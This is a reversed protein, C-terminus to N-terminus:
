SEVLVKKQLCYVQNLGFIFTHYGAIEFLNGALEKVREYTFYSKHEDDINKAYLGLFFEAHKKPTTFIFKGDPKLVRHIEKFILDPKL